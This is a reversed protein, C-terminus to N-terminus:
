CVAVGGAVIERWVEGAGRLHARVIEEAAPRVGDIARPEHLRLHVDALQPESVPQGIRSLLYCYAESVVPLEHVLTQAVRAAIINYLKGTHTRANKGAAAELSMPRYPTILGNVRNGRGVEGDDGAEASLGTVTLYVSQATDGDATNVDVETNWDTAEVAAARALARVREKIAFYDALDHVHRGVIACAVTITLANRERLGLVKVDDGIAPCERRAEDSALRREAALVARELPDLPAYGVGFSTDNALPAGNGSQRAFLAALDQSTERIRPIVRVDRREVHHLNQAIWEHAWERALSEVPITESGLRSTARGALTIEIPTKIEGGGFAPQAAGGLLLGKDVNHHLITGFREAYYRSLGVSVSEAVADCITDPHGRGKREVIEFALEHPAPSAITTIHLQM